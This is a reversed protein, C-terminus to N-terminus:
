QGPGIIGITGGVSGESDIRLTVGAANYSQGLKVDALVTRNSTANDTVTVRFRSAATAPATSPREEPPVEKYPEVSEVFIGSQTTEVNDKYGYFRFTTPTTVSILDKFAKSDHACYMSAFEAGTQPDKISFRSYGKGRLYRGYAEVLGPDPLYTAYVVISARDSLSSMAARLYAVSVEKQQALALLPSVMLVLLPVPIWRSQSRM